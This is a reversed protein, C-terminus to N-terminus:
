YFREGNCGENAEIGRKGILEMTEGMVWSECIRHLDPPQTVIGM